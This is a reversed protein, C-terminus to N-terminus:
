KLGSAEPRIGASLLFEERRTRVDSSELLTALAGQSMAIPDEPQVTQWNPSKGAKLWSFDDVQDWM